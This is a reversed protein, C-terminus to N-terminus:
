PTYGGGAEVIAEQAFTKCNNFLISYDDRNPDNKIKEAYDIIKKHDADQWYTLEVASDRGYRESLFKGLRELSEKTPLGDNGIEVDPIRKRRM